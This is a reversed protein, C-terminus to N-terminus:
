SSGLPDDIESSASAWGPPTWAHSEQKSQKALAWPDLYTRKMSILRHCLTVFGFSSLVVKHMHATQENTDHVRTHALCPNNGTTCFKTSVLRGLGDVIGTGAHGAPRARVVPWAPGGAPQVLYELEYLFAFNTQIENRRVCPLMSSRQCQRATGQTKRWVQEWVNNFNLTRVKREFSEEARTVACTLNDKSSTSTLPFVLFGRKSLHLQSPMRLAPLDSAPKALKRVSSSTDQVLYSAM